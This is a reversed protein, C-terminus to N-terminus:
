GNQGIVLRLSRVKQIRIEGFDKIDEAGRFTFQSHYLIRSGWFDTSTEVPHPSLLLREYVMVRIELPLRMLM